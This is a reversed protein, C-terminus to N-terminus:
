AVTTNQEPPPPSEKFIPSYSEHTERTFISPTELLQITDEEELNIVSMTKSRKLEPPSEEKLPPPPRKKPSEQEDDVYDDDEEEESDEDSEEETDDIEEEEDDDDDIIAPPTPNKKKNPPPDLLRSAKKESKGMQISKTALGLYVPDSAVAIDEYGVLAQPVRATFIGQFNEVPVGKYLNLGSEYELKFIKDGERVHIEGDGSVCFEHKVFDM